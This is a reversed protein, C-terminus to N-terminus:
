PHDPLANLLAAAKWVIEDLLKEDYPLWPLARLNSPSKPVDLAPDTSLDRGSQTVRATALHVKCDGIVLHRADVRVDGRAIAGAFARTLIHRRMHLMDSCSTEAISDLRRCRAADYQDPADQTGIAFAATSVLLDVARCAESVAVPSVAAPDVPTWRTGRRVSFRIDGSEAWGAAGPYLRMGAHFAVRLAGFQRMLTEDDIHWGERRALGVLARVALVHGAFLATAGPQGAPEPRYHERFAQRLPQRLKKDGLHTQWAAIESASATAPHWLTVSTADDLPIAHGDLGRAQSHSDLMFSQAGARWILGRTFEESVCNIAFMAKWGAWTLALDQYWGAELCRALMSRQQRAPLGTALLRSLLDPRDALAREAPKLNRSLKKEVGAHRVVALAARLAQVAEPTPVGQIAHGLAISLSQSPCTKAATPAICAGVMLPEILARLWPEDRLAAVRYACGLVPTDDLAFAADAKYPIAGSAIADVQDRARTLASEAFALYPAELSLAVAPDDGPLGNGTPQYWRHGAGAIALIANTGLADLLGLEELRFPAHTFRQRLVAMVAAHTAQDTFRALAYAEYPQSPWDEAPGLIRRLQNALGAPPACAIYALAKVADALNGTNIATFTRMCAEADLAPEIDHEAACALVAEALTRAPGNAYDRQARMLDPWLSGLVNSTLAGLAPAPGAFAPHSPPPANLRARIDDSTLPM